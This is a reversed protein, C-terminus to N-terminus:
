SAKSLIGQETYQRFIELLDLLRAQEMRDKTLRYGLILLDEAQFIADKTSIPTTTSLEEKKVTTNSQKKTQATTFDDINQDLQKLIEDSKPKPNMKTFQIKLENQQAENRQSPHRPYDSETYSEIHDVVSKNDSSLNEMDSEPSELIYLALKTDDVIAEFNTSVLDYMDEDPIDLSSNEYMNSSM